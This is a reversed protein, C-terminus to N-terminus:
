VLGYRGAFDSLTMGAYKPFRQRFNCDSWHGNNPPPYALSCLHGKYEPCATHVCANRIQRNPRGLRLMVGTLEDGVTLGLVVNRLEAEPLENLPGGVKARGDETITLFPTAAGIAGRDLASSWNAGFLLSAPNAAVLHVVNIPGSRAFTRGATNWLPARSLAEGNAFRLILSSYGSPLFADIVDAPKMQRSRSPREDLQRLMTAFAEGPRENHLAVFVLTSFLRLGDGPGLVRCLAGIAKLYTPDGNVWTKLRKLCAVANEPTFEATYSNFMPRIPEVTAAGEILQRASFGLGDVPDAGWERDLAQEMAGLTQRLEGIFEDPGPGAALWRGFESVLHRYDECYAFLFPTTLAHIQHVMEHMLTLDDGQPWSADETSLHGRVRVVGTSYSLSGRENSLIFRFLREIDDDSATKSV